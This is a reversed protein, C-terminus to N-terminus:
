IQLKEKLLDNMNYLGNPKNRIFEAAKLAGSAFVSKSLASHSISIIENEGGFIIEHEGV